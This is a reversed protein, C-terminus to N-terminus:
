GADDGLCPGGEPSNHSPNVGLAIREKRQKEGWKGVLLLKGEKTRESAARPGINERGSETGEGWRVVKEGIFGEIEKTKGRQLTKTTNRQKVCNENKKQFGEGTRAL